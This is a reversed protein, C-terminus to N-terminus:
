SHPLPPSDRSYFYPATLQRGSKGASPAARRRAGDRVGLSQTAEATIIALRRLKENLDETRSRGAELVLVAMAIGLVIGFLGHISVRFLGFDQTQWEPRDLGHLGRAIMAAALLKWGFGRHRSHTRWLIWGAIIYLSGEFISEAWHVASPYRALFQLAFLGAAGLIGLPALWRLRSGSGTCELIASFSSLPAFFRFLTLSIPPTRGAAGSPFFACPAWASTFPGARWGSDSFDLLFVPLSSRTFSSFSLPRPGRSSPLRWSVRTPFLHWAANIELSALVGLPAELFLTHSLSAM